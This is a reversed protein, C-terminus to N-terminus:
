ASVPLLYRMVVADERELHSVPYYGKRLGVSEFGFRLYIQQARMNGKRVELWEGRNLSATKVLKLAPRGKAPSTSTSTSSAPVSVPHILPKSM